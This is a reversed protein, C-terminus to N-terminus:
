QTQDINSIALTNIQTRVDFIRQIFLPLARQIQKVQQMQYQTPGTGGVGGNFYLRLIGIKSPMKILVM